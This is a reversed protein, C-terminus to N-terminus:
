VHLLDAIRSAYCVKRLMGKEAVKQKKGKVKEISLIM